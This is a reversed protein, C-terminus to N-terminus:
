VRQVTLGCDAVWCGTGVGAGQFSLEFSFTCMLNGAWSYLFFIRVSINQNGNQFSRLPHKQKINLLKRVTPIIWSSDSLLLKSSDTKSPRQVKHFGDRFVLQACDSNFQPSPFILQWINREIKTINRKLKFHTPTTKSVNKSVINRQAEHTVAQRQCSKIVDLLLYMLTTGHCACIMETSKVSCTTRGSEAGQRQEWALGHVSNQESLTYVSLPSQCSAPKFTWREWNRICKSWVEVKWEIIVYLLTHTYIYDRQNNRFSCHLLLCQLFVKGRDSVSPFLLFCKFSFNSM